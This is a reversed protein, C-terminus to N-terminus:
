GEKRQHFQVIALAGTNMDGRLREDEMVEFTMEFQDELTNLGNLLPIKKNKVTGYLTAEVGFPDHLHENKLKSSRNRFEEEFLDEYGGTCGCIPCDDVYPHLESPRDVEFHVSIAIPFFEGQDNKLPQQGKLLQTYFRYHLSHDHTFEGNEGMEIYQLGRRRGVADCGEATHFYGYDDYMDVTEELREIVFKLAQNYNSALKKSVLMWLNPYRPASSPFQDKQPFMHIM